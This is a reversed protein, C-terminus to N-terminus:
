GGQNESVGGKVKLMQYVDALNANIYNLSMKRVNGGEYPPMGFLALVQNDTLAGRDGLAQVFAMKNKVDM